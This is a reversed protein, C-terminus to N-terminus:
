NSPLLLNTLPPGVQAIGKICKGTELNVSAIYVPRRDKEDEEEIVDTQNERRSQTPNTRLSEEKRNQERERVEQPHRQVSKPISSATLLLEARGSGGARYEITPDTFRGLCSRMIKFAKSRTITRKIDTTSSLANEVSHVDIRKSGETYFGISDNVTAEYGNISFKWVVRRDGPKDFVEILRFHKNFHAESMGTKLLAKKSGEVLSKQSSPLQDVQNEAKGSVQSNVVYSSALLLAAIVFHRTLSNAMMSTVTFISIVQYPVFTEVQRIEGVMWPSDRGSSLGAM